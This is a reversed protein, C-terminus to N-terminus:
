YLEYLSERGLHKVYKSALKKLPEPPGISIWDDVSGRFCFREPTFLRHERDTLVFRMVAQYSAFREQLARKAALSKPPSLFPAFDALRDLGSSSEFITISKDRIEIKYLNECRVREIERAISATEDEHILKPRKRRLFVQGQMSEYIEFGPPVAEALSGKAEMSFYYQVGSGRKPGTHLYYTRGTRNTHTIPM